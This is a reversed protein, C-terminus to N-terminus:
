NLPEIKFIREGHDALVAIKLPHCIRRALEAALKEMSEIEEGAHLGGLKGAIIPLHKDGGEWSPIVLSCLYKEQGLLVSKAAEFCKDCYVYQTCFSGRESM